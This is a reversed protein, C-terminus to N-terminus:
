IYAIIIDHKTDNKIINKKNSILINKTPKVEITLIKPAYDGLGLKKIDEIEYGSLASSSNGFINSFGIDNNWASDYANYDKQSQSNPILNVIASIDNLDIPFKNRIDNVKPDEWTINGKYYLSHMFWYLDESIKKADDLITIPLEKNANADAYKAAIYWESTLFFGKGLFTEARWDRIHSPNFDNFDRNTGHYATATKGSLLDQVFKNTDNDLSQKKETIYQLFTKM